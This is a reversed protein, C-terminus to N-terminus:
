GTIKGPNEVMWKRIAEEIDMGPHRKALLEIEEWYDLIEMPLAGESSISREYAAAEAPFERAWESLAETFEDSEVAIGEFIAPHKLRAEEIAHIGQETLKMTLGNRLSFAAGTLPPRKRM